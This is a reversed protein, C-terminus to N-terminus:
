LIRKLVVFDYSRLNLTYLYLCTRRLLPPSSVAAASSLRRLLLLSPVLPTPTSPELNEDAQM